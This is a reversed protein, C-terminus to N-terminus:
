YLTAAAHHACDGDAPRGAQRRPSAPFLPAIMCCVLREVPMAALCAPRVTYLVERSPNSLVALLPAVLSAANLATFLRPIM